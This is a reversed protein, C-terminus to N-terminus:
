RMTARSTTSSPPQRNFVDAVNLTIETDSLVASEPETRFGLQLDVTTLASVTRNAGIDRYADGYDTSLAAHFGPLNLGREFWQVTARGRIRMPNGLTGLESTFPSDPSISQDLRLYFSSQLDFNILGFRTRDDFSLRLDLGRAETSSLNRVRYDVLAAVKTNKCTEIPIVLGPADCIANIDAQSPARNIVTQWRAEQRLIDLPSAASPTSIRDRYSTVFYTGSFRANLLNRFVADFGITWTKAREEQLEPNSGQIALVISRGTPSAPDPLSAFGARNQSTDYIDTIRPAKFSKGWSGRLKFTESPSWRLGIKPNTTGGFDSYREYRAAVSLDLRPTARENVSDGLLPFAFEAFLADSNRHHESHTQVGSEFLDSRHEAGIAAKAQGGWMDFLPGGIRAQIASIGSRASEHQVGRIAALTEM